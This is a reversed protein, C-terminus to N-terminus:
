KVATIDGAGEKKYLYRMLSSETFTSIRKLNVKGTLEYYSKTCNTVFLGSLAADTEAGVRDLVNLQRIHKDKFPYNNEKLEDDLLVLKGDRAINVKLKKVGFYKQGDIEFWTHSYASYRNKEKSIYVEYEQVIGTSDNQMTGKWLGTIDQAYMFLPLCFAALTLTLTKM